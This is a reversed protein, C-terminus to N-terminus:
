GMLEPAELLEFFQDLKPTIIIETRRNVSRGYDSVNEMKPVYSSRGAATLRAPDVQYQSQLLRVVATARLVSLDWNDKYSGNSIPVSDTHGEVLVNLQDHDNIVSAVKSLVRHADTSIRSSATSFLLNDSISVYVSSGRVEVAIDEDNIDILSRKLNTVLAMNMSDKEHIRETLTHIYENQRTLNELSSQISQSETKNIVSMDELRSLLSTNTQQIHDMQENLQEVQESKAQLQAELQATKQQDCSALLSIMALGVAISIIPNKM